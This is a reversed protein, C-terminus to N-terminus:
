LSARQLRSRRTHTPRPRRMRVAGPCAGATPLRWTPSPRQSRPRGPSAARTGVGAQRKEEAQRGLSPHPPVLLPVPALMRSGSAGAPSPSPLSLVPLCSRKPYLICRCVSEHTLSASPLRPALRAAPGGAPPGGRGPSPPQWGGVYGELGGPGKARGAGRQSGTGLGSITGQPMEWSSRGTM